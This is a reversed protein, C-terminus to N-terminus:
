QKALSESAAVERPRHVLAQGHGGVVPGRGPGVLRLPGSVKM